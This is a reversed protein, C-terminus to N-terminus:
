KYTIRGEIQGTAAGMKRFHAMVVNAMLTGDTAGILTKGKNLTTYGDGGALIFDNAAVTYKANLDLPKGDIELSVLRSGVPASRDFVAKGGSIQAFRGARSDIQSIGNELAEKL